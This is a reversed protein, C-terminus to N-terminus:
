KMLRSLGRLRRCIYIYICVKFRTPHADNLVDALERALQRQFRRVNEADGFSGYIGGFANVKDFFVDEFHIRVTVPAGKTPKKASLTQGGIRGGGAGGGRALQQATRWWSDSGKILEVKKAHFFSCLHTANKAVCRSVSAALTSPSRFDAGTTDPRVLAEVIVSGRMLSSIACRDRVVGAADSLAQLLMRRVRGDRFKRTAPDVFTDFDLDLHILMRCTRTEVEFGAQTHGLARAADACAGRHHMRMSHDFFM